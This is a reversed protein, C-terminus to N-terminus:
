WSYRAQRESCHTVASISFDGKKSTATLHEGAEITVEGAATTLDETAVPLQQLLDEGRTSIKRKKAEGLVRVVFVM